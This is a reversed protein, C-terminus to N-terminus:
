TQLVPWLFSMKTVNKKWKFFSVRRSFKADYRSVKTLM